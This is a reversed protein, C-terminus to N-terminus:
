TELVTLAASIHNSLFSDFSSRLNTSYNTARQMLTNLLQQQRLSNTGDSIDRGFVSRVVFSYRLHIRKRSISPSTNSDKWKNVAPSPIDKNLFVIMLIMKVNQLCYLRIQIFENKVISVMVKKPISTCKTYNEFFFIYNMALDKFKWTIRFRWFDYLYDSIPELEVTYFLKPKVPIQCTYRREAGGFFIRGFFAFNQFISTAKPPLPIQTLCNQPIDKKQNEVSRLTM